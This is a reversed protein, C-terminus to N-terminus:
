RPTSRALFANIGQEHEFLHGASGLIVAAAPYEGLWPYRGPAFLDAEPLALLAAELRDFTARSDALVDSVPRDRSAEYARQNIKDVDGAREEDLDDGWPPTPAEGRVAAELRAVSWWRWFTLHAVADKFTWDDAVGPREMRGPGAEAVLRELDARMRWLLAQLQVASSMGEYEPAAGRKPEM